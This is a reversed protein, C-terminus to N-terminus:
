SVAEGPTDTVPTRASRKKRMIGIYYGLAKRSPPTALALFPVAIAWVGLEKWFLGVAVGCWWIATVRYNPSGIHRTVLAHAVLYALLGALEGYGYGIPGVVRITVWTTAAFLLIHTATFAALDLNKDIASFLASHANFTAVTLYGLAIYPYYDMVPLWQEGFVLRVPISGFWGFGLLIVGVSFTQLEMAETVGRRMKEPADQLKGLVVLSIRWTVTKIISLMELIGVTLGILGVVKAGMVPAVVLPNVLMRMSWIWNGLCFHLAYRVIKRVWAGDWGFSPLSRCLYHALAFAFVEQTLWSVALAKPGFGTLVLPVAVIYFGLQAFIEVMAVAKYNLARELKALAPFTMLTFPLAFALIRIIDPTKEIGTYDGIYGSLIHILALLFLGNLLLISYSSKWLKTDPEEPLRLLYVSVGAQGLLYSYQYIAYASVYAGYDSPGLFRTILLVGILKLVVSFAHRGVLYIGGKITSERLTPKASDPTESM